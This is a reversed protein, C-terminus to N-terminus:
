QNTATNTQQRMVNLLFQQYELENSSALAQHRQLATIDRLLQERKAENNTIESVLDDRMQTLTSIADRVSEQKDPEPHVPQRMVWLMLLAEFAICGALLVAWVWRPIPKM